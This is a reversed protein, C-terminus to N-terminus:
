SVTVAVPNEGLTQLTTGPASFASRIIGLGVGKMSMPWVAVSTITGLEKAPDSPSVLRLPASLPVTSEIQVRCLQKNVHGMANLRAIPEQGLYCGKNFSIARATRMAEQALNEDTLDVGVVPFGAQIRLAEFAANSGLAIGAATMQNVLLEIQPRAATVLLGPTQFLDVRKVSLSVSVDNLSVTTSFHQWEVLATADIGLSKMREVANPGCVFMEGATASRDTIELNELLHYRKLHPVLTAGMNATTEVWLSDPGAFVFIHGLIRGKINVMFAECGRGIPLSKIDNTCFNHLFTHRDTGALEFQTRDGLEFVAADTLAMQVVNTLSDSNLGNM